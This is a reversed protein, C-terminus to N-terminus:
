LKSGCINCYVSEKLNERGCQACIQKNKTQSILRTVSALEDYLGTIEDIKEKVAQPASENDKLDTYALQGLEQMKKGIENNLGNATFKLRSIDYINEAKKGVVEAASKANVLVDDLISM